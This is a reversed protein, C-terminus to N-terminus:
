PSSSSATASPRASRRLPPAPKPAPKPVAAAKTELGAARRPPKPSAERGFDGPTSASVPQAADDGGGGLASGFIALAVIGAPILVRKKSYWARKAKPHRPPPLPAEHSGSRLAGDVAAGDWYRQQGDSQPYWGAPTSM